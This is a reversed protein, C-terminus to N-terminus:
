RFGGRKPGDLKILMTIKNSRKGENGDTDVSSVQFECNGHIEDVNHAPTTPNVIIVIEPNTNCHYYINFQKLEAPLLVDGNERATPSTWTLAVTGAAVLPTVAGWVMILLILRLM